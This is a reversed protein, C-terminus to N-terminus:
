IGVRAWKIFESPGGELYGLQRRVEKGSPDLLVYTPFGEIDFKEQLKRNQEAEAAPLQKRRPFDLKVLILNRAAFKKFGPQSLVDKEMRICGPCWDSGTFDLLVRKNEQAAQALAQKYDTQWIGADEASKAVASDAGLTSGAGLTAAILAGLIAAM